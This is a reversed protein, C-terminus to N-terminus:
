YKTQKHQPPPAIAISFFNSKLNRLLFLEFTCSKLFRIKAKRKAYVTPYKNKFAEINKINLIKPEIILFHIDFNQGFSNM